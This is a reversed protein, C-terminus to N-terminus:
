IDEGNLRRRVYVKTNGKEESTIETQQVCFDRPENAATSHPLFKM